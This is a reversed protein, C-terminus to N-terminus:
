YEEAAGRRRYCSEAIWSTAAAGALTELADQDCGRDANLTRYHSRPNRPASKRTKPIGSILDRGKVDLTKIENMSLRLSETQHNGRGKAMLLCVRKMYQVIEEDNKDGGGAVSQICSAALSIVGSRTGGGIDVVMSSIPEAIAPGSRDGRWRSKLSSLNGPRRGIRGNGRVAAGSWRRSAPRCPFSIPPRVLSKRHSVCSSFHKLM